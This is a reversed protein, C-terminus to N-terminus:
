KTNKERKKIKADLHGVPLLLTLSIGLVVRNHDAKIRTLSRIIRMADVLM